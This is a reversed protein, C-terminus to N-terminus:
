LVALAASRFRYTDGTANVVQHWHAFRNVMTKEGPRLLVVRVFHFRFRLVERYVGENAQSVCDVDDTVIM